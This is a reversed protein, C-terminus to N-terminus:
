IDYKQFEAWISDWQYSLLNCVSCDFEDIGDTWFLGAIRSFCPPIWYSVWINNDHIKLTPSLPVQEGVLERELNQKTDNRTKVPYSQLHCEPPWSINGDVLHAQMYNNPKASLPIHWSMYKLLQMLRFVDFTSWLKRPRKLRSFLSVRSGTKQTQLWNGIALVINIGRSPTLKM